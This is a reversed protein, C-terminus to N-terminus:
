AQRINYGQSNLATQAAEAATAAHELATSVDRLRHAALTVQAAPDRDAGTYPNRDYVDMRPDTLAAAVGTPLYDAVEKLHWLLVKLEGLLAYATPAPIVRERNGNAIRALDEAANCAQLAVERMTENTETLHDMSNM